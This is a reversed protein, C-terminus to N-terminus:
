LLNCTSRGVLLLDLCHLLTGLFLSEQILMVQISLM